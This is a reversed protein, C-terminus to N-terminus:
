LSPLTITNSLLTIEGETCLLRGIVTSGTEVSNSEQALVSGQFEVDSGITSSSGVAWYVHKAQAGNILVVKAGNNATLTSESQFIFVSNPNGQGDLRLEGGVAIDLSTASWYVGPGLTRDALNATITETVPRAQAEILVDTLDVKAQAAEDTCQYLTGNIVPNTATCPEGDGKCTCTPHLGVDGNLTTTGGSNSNTLGAGAVAVFTSLTGLDLPEEGPYFSETTTFTWIYDEVLPNGAEDLAEVTITATYEVDVLLLLPAPTFTATLTSEDYVVTGAVEDLGPGTVLFTQDTITQEDMAKSFTASVTADVPVDTELDEPETSVVMPAELTTFTWVYDQELPTGALNEAGTTITATYITDPLLDADPTFTATLTLPDYLLEGSVEVLDPDVLTFTGDTTLTPEDMAESFTAEVTADLAVDIELDAPDTLEVTPADEAGTTFEWVYNELLANGALDKAGTTITATYTTGEELDATPDFTATSGVLTVAGLVPDIGNLLTFTATTLTLPDMEKDFTASMNAGPAVNIAGDTPITSSVQPATTDAETGTTFTWSYDDDLPNGSLDTATDSIRATYTTDPELNATPNFTATVGTYSVAGPVSTTGDMLTFSATSITLPDMPESFTASVLTNFAVDTADNLPSTSSVRPATTDAETGTTFTWSYDEELRNGSLDTATDGIRATYTTDPELDATPNFTATVGTYSVAGPVSTTGDNLTFSEASITAPDMPESFCAGVHTNIHVGIAGNSPTTCSVQPATIDPGIGSTFSWTYSGALHNGALDTVTDSIRATYTTDPELDATPKFTATVGTYSVAGPVPTTGDNLTFSEASITASDMPKSFTVSISGGLAVETADEGPTTASVTPATEDGKPFGVVPGGCGVLPLLALSLLGIQLISMHMERHRCPAGGRGSVARSSAKHAVAVVTERLEASQCDHTRM